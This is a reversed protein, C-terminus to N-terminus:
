REIANLIQERWEETTGEDFGSEAYWVRGDRDVIIATPYFGVGYQRDVIRNTLLVPYEIRMTDVLKRLKQDENDDYSDIGLFVVDRDAFEKHLKVLSPLARHCPFCAAYFFDLFVVRGKLDSLTYMGGQVDGKKLLEPGNYEPRPAESIVTNDPLSAGSFLGPKIEPDMQAATIWIEDSTQLAGAMKHHRVVKLPLLDSIRLHWEHFTEIVGQGISSVCSLVMVSDSGVTGLSILRQTIHKDNLIERMVNDKRPIPALEWGRLVNAIRHQPQRAAAYSTMRGTSPRGELLREGDFLMYEGESTKGHIKCGTWLSDARQAVVTYQTEVPGPTGEMVYRSEVNLRVATSADLKDAAASLIRNFREDTSQACSNRSTVLLLLLLFLCAHCVNRLQWFCCFRNAHVGDVISSSRNTHFTM